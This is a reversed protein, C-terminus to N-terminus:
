AAAAVLAGTWRDPGPFQVTLSERGASSPFPYPERVFRIGTIEDVRVDM